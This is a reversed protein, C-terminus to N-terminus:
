KLNVDELWGKLTQADDQFQRPEDDKVFELLAYMDSEQARSCTKAKTLFEQWSAQGGELPERGGTEADWSFMHLGILRPMAADMDKLCFERSTKTRPQWYTNFAPHDVAEFLASAADATDTLTNGHWECALEIGADSAMSSIRRCDEYIRQRSADDADASGQRGIWVRLVRTELAVACALVGEFTETEDGARYYSGYAAVELGAERTLALVEKATEAEGHPVHIDGGWEIGKLGAEKVLSVIERASLQRFTISVLGPHFMKITRSHIHELAVLKCEVFVQAGIMREAKSANVDAAYLTLWM